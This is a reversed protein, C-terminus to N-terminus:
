FKETQRILLAQFGNEKMSKPDEDFYHWNSTPRFLRQITDRVINRKHQLPDFSRFNLITGTDTPKQCLNSSFKREDVYVAIDLFVIEHKQNM